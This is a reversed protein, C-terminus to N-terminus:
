DEDSWCSAKYRVRIRLSNVSATSFDASKSTRVPCGIKNTKTGLQTRHQAVTVRLEPIRPCEGRSIATADGTIRPYQSQIQSSPGLKLPIKHESEQDIRRVCRFDLM